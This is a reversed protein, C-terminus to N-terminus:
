MLVTSPPCRERIAELGGQFGGRVGEPKRVVALVM